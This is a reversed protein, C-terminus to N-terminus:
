VSRLGRIVREIGFHSRYLLRAMQGLQERRAPKQLLVEVSSFLADEDGAPALVVGGGERWVPETLRGETTVIPLGLALGAMASTQRSNIGNPYPQLLVDSASLFDVVGQPPLLGTALVRGQLARHDHVFRDTFERSHRGVLLVRCNPDALLLRLLTATLVPTINPGFTGFHGVVQTAPNPAIRRRVMAVQVANAETPFNSPVPLWDIATRGPALRRLLGAWAPIAVWSRTAAHHILRAMGRTVHGLLKHRWPQGSFLPFSVEHFMVEFRKRWRGSLWLCFPLNMAKWGYAHPVYQVLIRVRPGLRLLGADLCRLSGPGFHDPLRHVTVRAGGAPPDPEGPAWVHVEDGKEALSAAVLRTYDSV